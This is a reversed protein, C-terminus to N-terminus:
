RAPPVRAASRRARRRTKEPHLRTRLRREALIFYVVSLFILALIDTLWQGTSHTWLADPSVASKDIGRLDVSSAAAALGWRDPFLQSLWSMFSGGPLRSTVGNLAIQVISIATVLAVAHELKSALTSVLLGLSMAAVTLAALSVFLSTVPGLALGHAPARDPIVCFMVTIVGAQAVAVVAYVAWKSILVSLAGVGARYERRIIPLENVIDSYALAQGSLVCLTSLLALAVTGAGSPRTGGLGPSGAVFAALLASLAAVTVPLSVIAVNKAADLWTRDNKTLARSGLLGCQRWILVVLKQYVSRPTRRQPSRLRGAAAAVEAPTRQALRGADRQAARAKDGGRYKAAWELSQDLLMSMLDAYTKFGFHRRIQRPPGSYAPAGDQVVVLIQDALHLHETAHTVVMVAHSKDPNVPDSRHAYEHLFTMIQRDMHADLGSTPEDLLLLPPDTLLELGISVRRLQGGSLTSLLQHRQPELSVVKIAENVAKDRKAKGAPSRLGFGHRFTAEVTLSPHLDIQQPVFGLQSRIQRAHTAMPLENFFLQGSELPLEGLLAGFLSSKGAGSPGLIALVTREQQIFSMHSLRVKSKSKAILDAAVLSARGLVQIEIQDANLMTYRHEAFDFSDGPDLTAPRLVPQGEIYPGYGYGRTRLELLGAKKV